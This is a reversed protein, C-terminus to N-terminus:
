FLALDEFYPKPRKLFAEKGLMSEQEQIARMGKEDDKKKQPPNIRM